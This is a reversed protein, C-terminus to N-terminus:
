EDVGNGNGMEWEHHQMCSQAASRRHEQEGEDMGNGNKGMSTTVNNGNKGM